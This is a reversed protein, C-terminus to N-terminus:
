RLPMPSPEIKQLARVARDRVQIDPDNTLGNLKPVASMAAPGFGGLLIVANNRDIESYNTDGIMEIIAPIVVAASDKMQGVTILSM